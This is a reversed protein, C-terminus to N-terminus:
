VCTCSFISGVGVRHVVEKYVETSMEVMVMGVVLMIGMFMPPRAPWVYVTTSVTVDRSVDVAVRVVLTLIVGVLESLCVALVDVRGSVALVVVRGSVALAFVRGSVLLFLEIELSVKSKEELLSKVKGELFALFNVELFALLNGELFAMLKREVFPILKEELKSKLFLWVVVSIAVNGVGSVVSNTVKGVCSVVVSNAVNGVSFESSLLEVGFGIFRFCDLSEINSVLLRLLKIFTEVFDEL